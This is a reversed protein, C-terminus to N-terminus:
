TLTNYISKTKFLAGRGSVLSSGVSTAGDEDAVVTESAVLRIVLPSDLRVM